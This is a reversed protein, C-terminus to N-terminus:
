FICNSPHFIYSHEFSSTTFHHIFDYTFPIFMTFAIIGLEILILIIMIGITFEIAKGSYISEGFNHISNLLDHLILFLAFGGIYSGILWFYVRLKSEEFDGRSRQSDEVRRFRYKIIKLPVLVMLILFLTFFMETFLNLFLQPLRHVYSVNLTGSSFIISTFLWLDIATVAVLPIGRNYIKNMDQFNHNFWRNLITRDSSKEMPSDPKTFVDRAIIIGFIFILYWPIANLTMVLTRLFIHELSPQFRGTYSFSLLYQIMSGATILEILLWFINIAIVGITIVALGRLGCKVRELKEDRKFFVESLIIPVTLIVYFPLNLILLIDLM